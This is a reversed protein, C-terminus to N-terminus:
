CIFIPASQNSKHMRQWFYIGVIVLLSLYCALTALSLPFRLSIHVSAPLNYVLNLMFHTLAGNVAHLFPLFIGLIFLFMVLSVIFPIILNYALSLLPFKGFYYLTLPIATINVALSLAIMAKLFSLILYSHQDLLSMQKIIYLSRTPFIQDVLQKATPFFLLISATIAFSFTFGLSLTMHPDLALILLIAFGLSNLSVPVKETMFGIIVVLSMTWARLISPGSGLFVFYSCLLLTLLSLALRQPLFLRLLFLLSTTVIAFHFGSIAMIHQLGAKGFEQRMLRDEFDGTLIGSLFEANRANKYHNRIYQKVWRKSQYRWKSPNWTNLVPTWPEKKDAIFNYRSGYGKKLTGKILYTRDSPPREIGRKKSFRVSCPLPPLTKQSYLKGTGLYLWQSGFNSQKSSISTPTFLLTGSIGAKPIDPLQYLVTGYTYTAIFLLTSLFIRKKDLFLFLLLPIILWPTSYISAYFGLLAATSYILIPHKFSFKM